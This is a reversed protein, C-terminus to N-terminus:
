STQKIFVSSTNDGGARRRRRRRRRGTLNQPLNNLCFIMDLKIDLKFESDKGIKQPSEYPQGSPYDLM